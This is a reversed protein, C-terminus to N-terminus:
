YFEVISVAGLLRKDRKMQVKVVARFPIRAKQAARRPEPARILLMKHVHLRPHAPHQHKLLSHQYMTPFLHLFTDLISHSTIKHKLLNSLLDTVLPLAQSKKTPTKKTEMSHLILMANELGICLYNYRDLGPYIM